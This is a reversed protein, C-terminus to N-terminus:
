SALESFSKDGDFCDNLLYASYIHFRLLRHPTFGGSTFALQHDIPLIPLPTRRQCQRAFRPGSPSGTDCSVSPELLENLPVKSSFTFHRSAVERHEARSPRNSANCSITDPTNEETAQFVFLFNLVATATVASIQTRSRVKSIENAM